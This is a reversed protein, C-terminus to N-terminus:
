RAAAVKVRKAGPPKDASKTKAATNAATKTAGRAASKSALKGATKSSDKAAVVTRAAAPKKGAPAKSAREPVMIQFKNNSIV